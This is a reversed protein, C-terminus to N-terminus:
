EVKSAKATMHDPTTMSFFQAKETSRHQSYANCKETCRMSRNHMYRLYLPKMLIWFAPISCVVLCHGYCKKPAIKAKPLSKSGRRPGAVSSTILIQWIFDLKWQVDCNLQSITWQQSSYSFVVSLFMSKKIQPWSVLRGSISSKWRGLKTDTRIKNDYSVRLHDGTEEPSM